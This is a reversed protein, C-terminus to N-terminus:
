DSHGYPMSFMQTNEKNEKTSEKPKKAECIFFCFFTYLFNIFIELLNSTFIQLLFLLYNFNKLNTGNYLICCLSYQTANKYM